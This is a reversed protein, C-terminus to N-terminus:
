LMKSYLRQLVLPFGIFGIWFWDFRIFGISFRYFRYKQPDPAPGGEGGGEGARQSPSPPPHLDKWINTKNTKM